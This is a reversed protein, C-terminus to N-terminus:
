MVFATPPGIAPHRLRSRTALLLAFAHSAAVAVLAPADDHEALEVIARLPVPDDVTALSNQDPAVLRKESWYAMAPGLVAAPLAAEASDEYLRMSAGSPVVADTGGTTTIMAVDDGLFVYGEYALAAALTSKGAGSSGAFVVAGADGAVSSGHIVYAGQMALLRPLVGDILEHAFTLDDLDGM